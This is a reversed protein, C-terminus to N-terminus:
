QALSLENKIVTGGKMVFKVHQLLTIDEIPDGQVAILDAFKGAEIAGVDDPWGILDAASTTAARIAGLTALGRRTMSQLEEANKGHRSATEPDSGDAIKVGIQGATTMTQRIAELYAQAKASTFDEPKRAIHADLGSLTPVLYVGKQKMLQLDTRDAHHGHEISDVGASIANHIGDATTAHAAVKLKAKHAEEVIVQMEAVTLTPYVWDAYVKILDAGHGIQERVARRAEEAGSVMQAGTPFDKLDPSIGFPEYQGVAAIGRTAVRMRPGAVLGNNIADRLAVDAYGSGENEVDRVTTFGAELTARANAVGELARYAESKTLLNLAYGNAGSPLRQMLHTHCDILGPLVTVDGLDVIQASAPAKKLVDIASGVVKIREGRIWIAANKTYSGSRIDLVRAARIIQERDPQPAGEQARLALPMILGIVGVLSMCQALYNSRNRIRM